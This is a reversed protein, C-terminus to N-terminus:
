KPDTAALHADIAEALEEHFPSTRDHVSFAARPQDGVLQHFREAPVIVLREKGRKTLAVPGKMAEDLILGPTKNLDTFSFTKM